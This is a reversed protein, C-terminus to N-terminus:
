NEETKFTFIPQRTGYQSLVCTEIFLLILNGFVKDIVQICKSVM